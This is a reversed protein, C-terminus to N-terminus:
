PQIKIVTGIPTVRCLEEIEENSLAICGATWDRCRHFAGIWGLRNRIGHIMIDCGASVGRGTARASEEESPYSIHLALHFRSDENRSDIRYTGEPTKQDGEEQKAGVPSRGLAIRYTKLRKGDRFVSLERASKGVVIRDIQATRPLAHWNHHALLFMGLVIVPLWTLLSIKWMPMLCCRKM